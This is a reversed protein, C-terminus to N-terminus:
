RIGFQVYHPSVNQIAGGLQMTFGSAVWDKANPMDRRCTLYDGWKPQSPMHTSAKTVGLRWVGAADDRYGVVHSLQRGGNASSGGGMFMAVGPVGDENACAEPYAFATKANWIDPEDALTMTAADIRVVRVFPFPRTGQKGATWMLGIKGKGFWAGTIRQDTRGLWNTGGDLPASYPPAVFPTIGIVRSTVSTSNEPWSFIRVERALAGNHSAFYMINSAGQVCRLSFNATTMFKDFTLPGNQALATLKIRFVVSRQWANNSALFSNTGVYLFNDSLAAHNYDFWEGTWAPDVQGPKLDWFKWAGPSDLTGAKVAIRLTNTANLKVYQLLWITTNIAKSYYVTQDCCFGGDAPPFFTFPDIMTWSTGANASRAAYWNGTFLIQNGNKGLSPEGVTSTQVGAAAGTVVSTKLISLQAV